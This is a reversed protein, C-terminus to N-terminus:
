KEFKNYGAPIAFTGDAIKGSTVKTAKIFGKSAGSMDTEYAEMPFMNATGTIAM